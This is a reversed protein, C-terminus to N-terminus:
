CYSRIKSILSTSNEDRFSITQGREIINVVFQNNIISVNIACDKRDVIRRLYSHLEKPSQIMEKNRMKKMYLVTTTTMPKATPLMNVNVAYVAYVMVSWKMVMGDM